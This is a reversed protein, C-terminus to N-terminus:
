GHVVGHSVGESTATATASVEEENWGVKELARGHADDDVVHVSRYKEVVRKDM